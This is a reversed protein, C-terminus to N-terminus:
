DAASVAACPDKCLSFTRRSAANQFFTRRNADSLLASSYCIEFLIGRKLAAKVFASRLVFLRSETLDLTILDVDLSQCAQERAGFHEPRGNGGMGRSQRCCLKTVVNLQGCIWTLICSVVGNGVGHKVVFRVDSLGKSIGFAPTICFNMGMVM